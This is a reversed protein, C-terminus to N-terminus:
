LISWGRTIERLQGSWVEVLDKGLGLRAETLYGRTLSPMISVTTSFRGAESSCRTSVTDVEVEAESRGDLGGV